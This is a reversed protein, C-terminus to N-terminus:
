IAFSTPLQFGGRVYWTGTPTNLILGRKLTVTSATNSPLLMHTSQKNFNYNTLSGNLTLTNTGSITIHRQVAATQVFDLGNSATYDATLLLDVNSVVTRFDGNIVGAQWNAVDNFNTAGPDGGATGAGIWAAQAPLALLGASLLLLGAPNSCFAKWMIM